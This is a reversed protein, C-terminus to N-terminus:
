REVKELLQPVVLRDRGDADKKWVFHRYTEPPPIFDKEPQKHDNLWPNKTFSVKRKEFEGKETDVIWLTVFKETGEKGNKTETRPSDGFNTVITKKDPSVARLSTRPSSNVEDPFPMGNFEIKEDTEINYFLKKFILWRGDDDIWTFDNGAEIKVVEPKDNKMRLIYTSQPAEGFGSSCLLVELNLNPSSDCMEFKEAFEPEGDPSWEKGDVYFQSHVSRYISTTKTHISTASIVFKLRGREIKRANPDDGYPAGTDSSGGCGIVLFLGIVVLILLNNMNIKM